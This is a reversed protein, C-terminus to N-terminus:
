TYLFNFEISHEHESHPEKLIVNSSSSSNLIQNYIKFITSMDKNLIAMNSIQKLNTKYTYIIKKLEKDKNIVKLSLKNILDLNNKLTITSDSKKKLINM